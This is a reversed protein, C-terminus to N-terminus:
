VLVAIGGAILWASWAVYSLPTLTAALKWGYREAPGVFELACVTLLAGIVIGPLGLWAPVATSQTFAVGVMITWTGTLLYGLHEGVGVGLYRNFSQFVVNVAERRAPSADPDADIRALEPVLFPWRVLGLFQVLAALVGITAGVEVLSAGAGPLALALLVSLPALAVATLTFVWWWLVLRTGGERFKALVEDTPRRLVDPYDFMAALAAFATNFLVPLVLMLVGAAVNSSM